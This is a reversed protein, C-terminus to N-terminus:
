GRQNSRSLYDRRRHHAVELELLPVRSTKKAFATVLVIIRPGDFFGILRYASGRHQARIEWLDETGRLKKLYETSPREVARVTDLARTIKARAEPPLENLFERVPSRGSRTEYWEIDRM